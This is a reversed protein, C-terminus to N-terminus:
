NNNNNNIFTYARQGDEGEKNQWKFEFKNTILKELLLKQREAPMTDPKEFKVGRPWSEETPVPGEAGNELSNAVSIWPTQSVKKDGLGLQGLIENYKACTVQRILEKRRVTDITEVSLSNLSPTPPTPPTSSSSSSTSPNNRGLAIEKLAKQKLFVEANFTTIMQHEIAISTALESSVSIYQGDLLGGAFMTICEAGYQYKVEQNLQNYSKNLTDWLTAQQKKTATKTWNDLKKTYKSFQEPDTKLHKYVESADKAFQGTENNRKGFYGKGVESCVLQWVSQRPKVHPRIGMTGDQDRMVNQIDDVDCNLEAALDRLEQQHRERIDSIRQLTSNDFHPHQM